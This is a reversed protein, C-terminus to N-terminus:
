WIAHKVTVAFDHMTAVRIASALRIFVAWLECWLLALLATINGSLRATLPTSNNRPRSAIKHRSNHVTQSGCASNLLSPWYWTEDSDTSDPTEHIVTLRVSPCEPSSRHYSRWSMVWSNYKFPYKYISNMQQITQGELTARRRFCSPYLVRLTPCM